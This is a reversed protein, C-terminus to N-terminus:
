CSSIAWSLVCSTWYPCYWYRFPFSCPQYEIQDWYPHDLSVAFSFEFYYSAWYSDIIILYDSIIILDIIVLCSLFDSQLDSSPRQEGFCHRAGLRALSRLSLCCTCCGSCKSFESCKSRGFCCGPQEAMSWSEFSAVFCWCPVALCCCCTGCILCSLRNWHPVCTSGSAFSGSTRPRM